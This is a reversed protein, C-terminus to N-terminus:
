EPWSAEIADAADSASKDGNVAATSETWFTGAGVDAPMLDSADFRFTEANALIDLFSQELPLYLSTDIGEAASLFGSLAGGKREAQAAQRANAYEVSGFYEMVAWVEPRDNHAAALTGAGLVPSGENSPFYFVDVADESGDAFATGEPIFAAYFSAQRHMLCDGDVLPQGNDGFPTAAISGGSAFVMGPTNWLNVVAEMQEVVIPDNFPIEHNVWQDYTDAGAFRLMMDEVWDTYTWGTAPGSEIGVCLPTDGNAIMEGTLAVFDDFTEPVTYGGAEFAAPKYWVLSKVDAKNPMGYQTGDVNGFGLFSEGWATAGVVDEPVPLIFGERAFDAVKGPQPYIGIDPANGGSVQANIQDSFDRAGTFTITMDNAEAFVNLADQMAGAEEDSSESGFVTVTTGALSHSEGEDEMADDEMADDEMADEDDEMADEDDEMADEDDEMADEDDSSESDDSTESSDDSGAETDTADDGSCAAAVLAFAFLLALLSKWQSLRM